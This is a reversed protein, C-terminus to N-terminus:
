DVGTQTSRGACREAFRFTFDLAAVGPHAGSGTWVLTDDGRELVISAGPGDISWRPMGLALPGVAARVAGERFPDAQSRPDEMQLAAMPKSERSSDESAPPLQLGEARSWRLRLGPALFHARGHLVGCDRKGAEFLWGGSAGLAELEWDERRQRLHIASTEDVGLGVRAPGEALARLLRWERARESFHTDMLFPGSLAFGGAPWTTFVQEDLGKCSSARACGPTPPVAQLPGQSLAQQPSGNSLMGPGSQVATGASTGGIVLAGRTVAERLADLWPYPRDAADVFARRLRWQDGGAFFVGHLDAPLTARQASRCWDQQEAVLDPFVPVRDPLGLEVRQRQALGTCDADEAILAAAAADLPWWVAEAGAETFLSTYYDVADFPDFASATVFAIRPTRNGARQRAADVLRRVIEVGGKERSALLSVRERLRQGQNDQQSQELAALVGARQYDDLRAWACPDEQCQGALADEIEGTTMGKGQATGVLQQLADVISATPASRAAFPLARLRAISAEDILYDSAGRGAPTEGDRCARPSLSSCVALSGGALVLEADQATNVCVAPTTTASLLVLTAIHRM